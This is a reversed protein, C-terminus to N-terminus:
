KGGEQVLQKGIQGERKASATKIERGEQCHKQIQKGRNRCKGGRKASATEADVKGRQVLHKQM